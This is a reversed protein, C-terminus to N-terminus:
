ESPMEDHKAVSASQLDLFPGEDHVEGVHGECQRGVHGRQDLAGRASQGHVVGIGRARACEATFLLASNSLGM